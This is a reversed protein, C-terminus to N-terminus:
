GIKWIEDFEDRGPPEFRRWMDVLVGDPVIREGWQAGGPKRANRARCVALPTQLWVAVTHAGRERAIGLENARWARRAHTADAIVHRGAELLRGVRGELIAFVRDGQDTADIGQAELENRIGDSAVIDATLRAANDRAWTTKGSGQIGVMLYLVATV